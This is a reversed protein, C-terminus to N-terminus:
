VSGLGYGGPQRPLDGGWPTPETRYRPPPQQLRERGRQTEAQSRDTQQQESYLWVFARRALEGAVAVAVIKAGTLLVERTRM